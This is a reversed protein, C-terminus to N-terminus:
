KKEEAAKPAAPKVDAAPAAADKKPAFGDQLKKLYEGKASEILKPKLAEFAPKPAELAEIIHFGFQTKVIGSVQKPQLAAAAKAFEPVYGALPSWGLDGGQQASGDKSAARALEEFPTGAKLAALVKQADADSKVLIHRLHYFPESMTKKQDEPFGAIKKDFIAKLEDDTPKYADMKTVFYQNALVEDQKLKLMMKTEDTKDIGEKRAADAVATQTALSESIRAKMADDIKQEPADKAIQKTVMEVLQATSYNSGGGTVGSLKDCASLGMVGAVLMAVLVSSKKM